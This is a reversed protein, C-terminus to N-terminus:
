LEIDKATPHENHMDVIVSKMEQAMNLLPAVSRGFNYNDILKAVFEAMDVEQYWPQSKVGPSVYTLNTSFIRNFMGKEFQENFREVGNTFQSFTVAVFIKRADRQRLQKMVEIISDGSAAIDDVILADMGELSPGMYEHEVIPNSGNIVRTYDRRKYFLGVGTDLISAYYIARDMAGTDPSIVVLRGSRISEGEHRVISKVIDYTPYLNEFSALPIANQVASNHMDFTLIDNVGMSQLEQLAMACDLSERSKRKDQRSAYMLPMLVTTRRSKGGIASIARKVDAFHEDPGMHNTFGHYSYTCSYNGKDCLIFVDKGRVSKPLRVKGEGSSFRVCQVPALLTEPVFGGHDFDINERYRRLIIEDVKEGFERFSDLALIVPEGYAPRNKHETRM